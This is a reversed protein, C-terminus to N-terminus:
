AKQAEDIQRLLNELIEVKSRRIDIRPEIVMESGSVKLGLEELTEIQGLLSDRSSELSTRLIAIQKDSLTVNSMSEKGMRM